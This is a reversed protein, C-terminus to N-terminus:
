AAPAGAKAKADLVRVLRSAGENILALFTARLVEISPLDALFAIEAATMKKADIIGVKIALKEKAKGFEKLTKAVGAPNTGGVVIAVQGTLFEGMDPAGRKKLVVNLVSNKVVHFEAGDKTLADRLEKTEPVNLKNYDLMYFYSPSKDLHKEIETALYKKADRM